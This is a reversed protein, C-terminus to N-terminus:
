KNIIRADQRLNELYGDAYNQLRKNRLGFKINKLNQTAKASLANRSCLMLFITKNDVSFLLNENTDLQKLLERIKATINTPNKITRELLHSPNEAAISYMDDCHNVELSLKEPIKIDTSEFSYTLYDISQIKPQVYSAEEFGRLQFLAIANPIRLPDTVDGPALGFVLPKLIPPLEEFKQWKVRGGTARTPAASYKKAAQSFEDQSTIKSLKEALLQAEHEKGQKIPLIIETLLVRLGATKGTSNLARELQIESVQSRSAFKSQVVNRWSIGAIIFDRFTNKDVGFRALENFFTNTNLGGRSIFENMGAIIEEELPILELDEAVGLKLRDEILQNRAIDELNGTSKLLKLLAERQSLEYYTISKDNVIIAPSFANQASVLIPMSIEFLAFTWFILYKLPMLLGWIASFNSHPQLGYENKSNKTIRLESSILCELIDYNERRSPHLKENM